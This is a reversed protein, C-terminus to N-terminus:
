SSAIGYLTFTSGIAWNAGNATQSTIQTIAANMPINTTKQQTNFGVSSLVFSTRSQVQKNYSSNAYNFFTYIETSWENAYSTGPVYGGRLSIEATGNGSPNSTGDSYCYTNSYGTTQSNVRIATIDYTSSVRASQVLVLDKYTQPISSFTVIGATSSLTQTGIPEYVAAM